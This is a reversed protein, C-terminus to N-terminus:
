TLVRWFIGKIKQSTDSLFFIHDTDRSVNKVTEVACIQLNM